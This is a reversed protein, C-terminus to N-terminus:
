PNNNRAMTQNKSQGYRAQWEQKTMVCRFGLHNTGTDVDGKGRTGVMYRSCYQDTCLFSGGRQVKKSHGPETPDYATTPGLPNYAIGQAALQTYYDPRYWDSTWQWVNGAMDYLGYGNPPFKEVPSTATYGDDGSNSDPFHGEFTNAMWKGKPRFEDGWVYPKGSLGGRAAFEWESETPIRKGAWRAYAEADEYAIHVVPYNDKGIISSQPGDPHRWNAGPIYTWWQFHNNLPVPHDPPAFVVSGAVLNEPSAGPYDKADPKREAVTVYGTARVFRTFEANTVDTKDIYFGDVYTRHIPSSDRTANMGVENMGAMGQAGMSFEGGPIWAMGAPPNGPASEKNPITPVFTAQQTAPMTKKTSLDPTNGSDAGPHAPNMADPSGALATGSGPERYIVVCALVSLVIVGTVIWATKANRKKLQKGPRTM